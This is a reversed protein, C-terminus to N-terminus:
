QNQLRRTEDEIISGPATGLPNTNPTNPQPAPQPAHYVPQPVYAQSQQVPMQVPQQTPPQLYHQVPPAIPPLPVGMQMQQMQMQAQWQQQDLLRQQNRFHIVAWPIGICMFIGAVPVLADALGIFDSMVALFGPLFILCLISLIMKQKPTYTATIQAIPSAPSPTSPTLQATGGTSVYSSVQTLGLGCQRCFKTTEPNPAGCRPCFM